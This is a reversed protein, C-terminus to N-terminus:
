SAYAVPHRKAAGGQAQAAPGDRSCQPPASGARHGSPLQSPGLTPVAAPQGGHGLLASQDGGGLLGSHGRLVYRDRQTELARRVERRDADPHSWVLEVACLGRGRRRRARRPGAGWPPPRSQNLRPPNPRVSRVAKGGGRFADPEWHSNARLPRGRHPQPAAVHAAPPLHRSGARGPARPM